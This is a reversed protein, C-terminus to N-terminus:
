LAKELRIVTQEFHQIRRYHINRFLPGAASLVPAPDM